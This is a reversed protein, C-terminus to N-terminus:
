NEGGIERGQGAAWLRKRYRQIEAEANLWRMSLEANQRRLEHITRSLEVIVDDQAAIPDVAPPPRYPDREDPIM